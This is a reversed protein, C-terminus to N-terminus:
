KEDLCGSWDHKWTMFFTRVINGYGIASMLESNIYISPTFIEFKGTKHVNHESFINPFTCSFYDMMLRDM